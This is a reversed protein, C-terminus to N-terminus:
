TETELSQLAAQPNSALQRAVPRLDAKLTPFPIFAREYGAGASAVLYPFYLSESLGAAAAAQRAREWAVRTEPNNRQALDILEPLAYVRRPDVPTHAHDGKERVPREALEREYEDLRPPAWPRESAPSPVDKAFAAVGLSFALTFIALVKPKM